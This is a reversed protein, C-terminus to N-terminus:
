KKSFSKLLIVFLHWSSNKTNIPLKIPLDNLNKFYFNAIEKRRKIFKKLKQIPFDRSDAEIDNM